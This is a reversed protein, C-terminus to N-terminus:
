AWSGGTAAVGGNNESLPPAHSDSDIRLRPSGHESEAGVAGGGVAEGAIDNGGADGERRRQGVQLAVGPHCPHQRDGAARPVRRPEGGRKGIAQGCQGLRRKPGVLRRRDVQEPRAAVGHDGGAGRRALGPAVLHRDGLRDGLGADPGGGQQDIGGLCEGLVLEPGEAIEAGPLQQRGGDVAIGAGLLPGPGPARGPDHQGVRLHEMVSQQGVMPPPSPQKAVQGVDDDVLEMQQPAHEPAVAGVHQSAQSPHGREVAGVRREHEGRCRDAPGALQRPRQDAVLDVHDVVVGGRGSGARQDDPVRM